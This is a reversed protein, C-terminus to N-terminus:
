AEPFDDEVVLMINSTYNCKCGASASIQEATIVLPKTFLAFKEIPISISITRITVSVPLLLIHIERPEIVM